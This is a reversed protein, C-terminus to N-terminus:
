LSAAEATTTPARRLGAPRLNSCPSAPISLASVSSSHRSHHDDSPHTFCSVFLFSSFLPELPLELGRRETASPTIDRYGVKQGSAHLVKMTTSTPSSSLKPLRLQPGLGWSIVIGASAGTAAHRLGLDLTTLAYLAQCDLWRNSTSCFSCQFAQEDDLSMQSSM